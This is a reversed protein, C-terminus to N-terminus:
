RRRWYKGLNLIGPFYIKHFKVVSFNLGTEPFIQAIFIDLKKDESRTVCLNHSSRIWKGPIWIKDFNTNFFFRIIQLSQICLYYSLNSYSNLIYVYTNRLELLRMLFEKYVKEIAPNSFLVLIWTQQLHYQPSFDM